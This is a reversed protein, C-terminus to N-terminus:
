ANIKQEWEKELGHNKVLEKLSAEERKGSVYVAKDDSYSYYADFKSIRELIEQQRKTYVKDKFPDITPTEGLTAHVLDWAWDRYNNLPALKDDLVSRPSQGPVDAVHVYGYAMAVNRIAAAKLRSEMDIKVALETVVGRLEKCKSIETDTAVKGMLTRSVEHEPKVAIDAVDKMFGTYTKKGFWLVNSLFMM